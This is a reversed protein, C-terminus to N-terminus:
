CIFTGNWFCLASRSFIGSAVLPLSFYILCLILKGILIMIIYYSPYFIRGVVVFFPPLSLPASLELSLARCM